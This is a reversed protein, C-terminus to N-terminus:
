DCKILCGLPVWGVQGDAATAWLWGGEVLEGAVIDGPELALEAATYDRLLVSVDREVRLWSEPVWGARGDVATAWVWGPYEEDRRGLALRDGAAGRIPDPYTVAWAKIARYHM